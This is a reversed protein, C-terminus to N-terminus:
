APLPPGCARPDPPASRAPQAAPPSQQDPPRSRPRCKKPTKGRPTAAAAPVRALIPPPELRLMWCLPRLIRAMPAPAQAILAVMAPDQLLHQLQSRNGILEPALALLWGFKLPLPSKQRPKAAAAPKRGHYRRPKYTGAALADALRKFKQNIGRLRDTILRLLPSALRGVLNRTVV